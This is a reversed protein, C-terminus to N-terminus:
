AGWDVCFSLPQPEGEAVRVPLGSDQDQFGWRPWRQEGAARWSRILSLCCRGTWSGAPPWTHM